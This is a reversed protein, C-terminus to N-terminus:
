QWGLRRMRITQCNEGPLTAVKRNCQYTDKSLTKDKKYTGWHKGDERHSIKALRSIIIKGELDAKEPLSVGEENTSPVADSENDVGNRCSETPDETGLEFLNSPRRDNPQPAEHNEVTPGDLRSSTVGKSFYKSLKYPWKQDWWWYEYM